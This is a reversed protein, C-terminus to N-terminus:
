AVKGAEFLRGIIEEIPPDKVSLDQIPLKALIHAITATLNERPVLFRVEQGTISKIEGFDALKEASLPQALEIKVERCPPM